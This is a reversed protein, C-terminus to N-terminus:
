TKDLYMKFEVGFNKFGIKEYFRHAKEREYRSTAVIKYCKNDKATKIIENLLETGIGQGRLDESVFVDELFGFPEKHLDNRLVYLFARAVEKGGQEIFFKIGSAKITKQKIDM